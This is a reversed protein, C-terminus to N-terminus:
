LQWLLSNRLKQLVNLPLLQITLNHFLFVLFVGCSTLLVAPNGPRSKTAEKDAANKEVRLSVCKWGIVCDILATHM